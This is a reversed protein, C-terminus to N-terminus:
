KGRGLKSDDIPHRSVRLGEGAFRLYLGHEKDGAAVKALIVNWGEELRVKIRDDDPRAPRPTAAEHVLNGNLWVRATGSAGLLMEAQQGKPAFVYTLAYASQAAGPLTSRMNLFGSPEAQAPQWKVEGAKGPYRATLDVKGQPLDEKKLDGGFPGVVHYELVLGRLSEQARRDRLFAILDILQGHTLQGIVNDPMLSTKSPALEEVDKRALRVDRGEADRLVVETGNELIKLGTFVQGKKTTAVYSQFGEKIEKSPEAIAEVIKELSQTDWLRTLDPGVPRGSGGVGELRHCNICQLTKSNLYLARGRMPNGKEAVLKRLRSVEEPNNGVRLGSKVVDAYLKALQQDRGAHRTLADSVQPLLGRPLKGEVFRKGM